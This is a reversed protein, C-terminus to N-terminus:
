LVRKKKLHARCTACVTDVIKAHRVTATKPNAVTLIGTYTYGNIQCGVSV